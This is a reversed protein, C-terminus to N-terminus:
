IRERFFRRLNHIEFIRIQIQDSYDVSLTPNLANTIRKQIQGWFRLIRKQIRFDPNLNECFFHVRLKDSRNM